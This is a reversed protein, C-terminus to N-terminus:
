SIGEDLHLISVLFPLVVDFLLPELFKSLGIVGVIHLRDNSYLKVAVTKTTIATHMKQKATISAVLTAIAFNTSYM